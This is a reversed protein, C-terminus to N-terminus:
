SHIGKGNKPIKSKTQRLQPALKAKVAQARRKIQAKVLLGTAPKVNEIEPNFYASAKTGAFVEEIGTALLALKEHDLSSYLLIVNLKTTVLIEIYKNTFPALHCIKPFNVYLSM